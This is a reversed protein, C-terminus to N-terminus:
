RGPRSSRRIHENEKAGKRNKEEDSKINKLNEKMKNSRESIGDCLRVDKRLKKIEKSICVILSKIEIQIDDRSRIEVQNEENNSKTGSQYSEGNNKMRPKFGENSNEIGSEYSKYVNKTGTEHVKHNNNAETECGEYNNKVGAEHGEVIKRTVIRSEENKSRIICKLQNRLDARKSILEQIDQASKTKYAGLQEKTDIKKDILLNSQAIISDLKVLDERLLFHMRKNSARPRPLIGFKYQYHLYLARLGTLRKSKKFDGKYQYYRKRREKMPLPYRKKVNQLIREKIADPTYDCGLKYLRFFRTHGPPKVGPYKVNMKLEYGMQEMANWFDLPTTSQIIAKDIDDRINGRWTIKGEQEAKAESYHKTNGYHPNKIVSISYEKCLRDSTSRMLRYSDTCAHFRKGDLFSTSCLVFHNHYHNTNLHTAVVVQFRDGWLEKALELGIKHANEATVEGEAFSQYAHYALVKLIKESKKHSNMMSTLATEPNCNIGSVYHKKETKLDEQTYELLTSLDYEINNTKGKNAVYDVVHDLRSHVAWIKTTAM